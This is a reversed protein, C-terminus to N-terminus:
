QGATLFPAIRALTRQTAGRHDAAFALAREGMATRRALDHCLDLAVALLEAASGGQWAAGAALAAGAAAAFNFVSPGLLVPKGLACPEILNQCGYDLVSGGMLVVDAARYYAYMEGLSDGVWVTCGAGPTGHQSRREVAFGRMAALDAVEAFREPHRPVIVLLVEGRQQPTLRCWADLLLAEEGARTSACLLVARAGIRQRFDDGLALQAPPPEIDFKLNGTVCVSQAGLTRLRAADAESQALVAALARLTLRSLVALRRYGRASRQSLRGNVLLLPVGRRACGLALNPWLETELLLGLTPKQRDLFRAVAGPTDYPLWLRAVRDGFLAEGAAWGTPTAHTLLLRHGPYRAGLADVLPVAARTEGLSVCHLWILPADDQRRPVGGLRQRWHRRYAPEQRSRWLLHLVAFPLALHVALSYLARALMEGVTLRM